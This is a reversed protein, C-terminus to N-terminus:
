IGIEVQFRLYWSDRADAFGTAPFRDHTLELQLKLAHEWVYRTIGGSFQERPRFARRVEREPTQKSYRGILEFDSPFLYSAQVDFGTGKLFYATRQEAGPDAEPLLVVPNDTQRSMWAGMLAWGQYKLMADLHIVTLDRKGFTASGLQGQTRRAGVNHHLTGALLLKPSQERALDGEFQTGNNRFAGLPMLELRGTYALDTDPSRTYNRGDGTSVATRLNYSFRNLDERGYNVFLGYDRDITFAANNISRDTLQLAGSSNVRQRNGPLKTQGFGISWHRDPRYFFVADRIVNLNEGEELVGVDGPAFSLQIAYLFRPDGVFGDFRLRLRRVMAEVASDQHSYSIYTARNQMRFRINVQYTSDPTTLGLGRGFSYYPLSPIDIDQFRREAETQQAQSPQPLAAVTLVVVLLFATITKKM